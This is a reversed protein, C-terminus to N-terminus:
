QVRFVCGKTDYSKNCEEVAAGRAQRITKRTIGYLRGSPSHAVAMCFWKDPGISLNSLECNGYSKKCAALADKEARDVDDAMRVAWGGNSNWALAMSKLSRGSLAFDIEDRFGDPGLLTIEEHGNAFRALVIGNAIGREVLGVWWMDRDERVVWRPMNSEAGNEEIIWGGKLTRKTWRKGIDAKVMEEIEAKRDYMFAKM